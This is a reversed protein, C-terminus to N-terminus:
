RGLIEQRRILVDARAFEPEDSGISEELQHQLEKAKDLNGEDIFRFLERLRDKFVQPREPVGMLDELIRNSDRGYSSDPHYAIVKGNRKELCFIGEPKVQSLVIPSHTTVIFQCNPFTRTLAPIIEYQWGPHLHLEIEDILVVGTGQLPDELGPNAIALRRALDGVMALLCKEGDSLQDLLLEQNEKIVTMRLPSRRVRLEQFNPILKYIAERVSGLQLDRYIPNDRMYENEIDERNKFWQFFDEFGFSTDSFSEYANFPHSQEIISEDLEFVSVLRKSSYSIALPLIKKRNLDKFEKKLQDTEFEIDTNKTEKPLGLISLERRKRNVTVSGEKSNVSLVLEIRMNQSDNRIDIDRFYEPSQVDSINCIFIRILNTLCDLISSKGVGNVGILVIPEPINFELMLEEIGRFNKISLSKIRM